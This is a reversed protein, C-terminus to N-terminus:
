RNIRFLVVDPASKKKEDFFAEKNATLVYKRNGTRLRIQTNDSTVLVHSMFWTDDKVLPSAAKANEAATKWKLKPIKPTLAPSSTSSSM